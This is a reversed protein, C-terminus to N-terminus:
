RNELVEPHEHAWDPHMRNIHSKVNAFNRRCDEVPCVGDAIRNRLRTVHGKYASASREAAAAQDRAADRSARANHLDRALRDARERERDTDNKGFIFRHGVPCYAVQDHDTQMKRYLSEPIALQIGCHCSTVILKGTYTMTSVTM